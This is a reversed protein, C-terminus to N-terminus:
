NISLKLVKQRPEQTSKPSYLCCYNNFLINALRPPYSKNINLDYLESITTLIHCLSKRCCHHVVEHFMVYGYIVWQCVFDGPIHLGGRNLDATFGGYKEYYFYSDGGNAEEKDKSILFGAIYVLAMMSDASISAQMEPLCDLIDCMRESLTFSCKECFHGPETEFLDRVTDSNLKLLLKVKSINVKELIQQVTIFYTGGSGQRLKSFEKELPDTSFTGLMVYEFSEEQLLYESLEVLGNCTQSLCSLTDKTLSKIRKGGACRMNQIMFNFSKLKQISVDYPSTIVKRLNDRTQQATFKSHVNVIKWFDLVCTLFCIIGTANEFEPHLKLASITEDCFVRLCTEVKQREIPTPCVAEFTLRSMKVLEKSEYYYLKKVDSWRATHKQDNLHFELEQTAETIWNNRINKILHVFDFLLFLNDKTRWPNITDFKKFFSQNVRNGDCIIAVVNAGAEKLNELLLNTQEFLFDAGMEKVPLMKCLFKPGGFMCVVMYSLVTNALKSSNNIAQGFVEGGHYQLMSKVYIEDLLLICTKQQNALNSFLRSYYTIDDYRKASSTMRTLTSISPLEFDQRFRNYATRSLAFYGFARVITANSYKREGVGKLGMAAAQEHLVDEKRSSSFNDLFRVAEEVQSWRAIQTIRNQTLSTISCKIGSHFAEYSFDQDIKLMFKFVGTGELLKKSQLYIEEKTAYVILECGFNRQSLGHRFDEYNLIKDGENFASLEDPQQSRVEASTRVTPRPLPTPSQLLSPKVCAFVSPPHLPREKGYCRVTEYGQPWHRECVVTYKSDPTNDRSIVKLWKEREDKNKPLRYVKEKSKDDYNGDCNTVCCKRGM